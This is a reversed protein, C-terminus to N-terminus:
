NLAADPGRDSACPAASRPWGSRFKWSGWAVRGPGHHSRRRMSGSGTTARTRGYRMQPALSPRQELKYLTELEDLRGEGFVRLVEEGETDPVWTPSGARDSLKMRVLSCARGLSPVRALLAGLTDRAAEDPKAEPWVFHVVPSSPSQM